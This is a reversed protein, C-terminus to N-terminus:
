WKMFRRLGAPEALRGALRPQGPPLERGVWRWQQSAFLHLYGCARCMVQIQQATASEVQQSGPGTGSPMEVACREFPKVQAPLLSGCRGCRYGRLMLPSGGAQAGAPVDCDVQSFPEMWAGEGITVGGAIQSHHGIRAGARIWTFEASGPEKQESHSGVQSYEGIQVGKEIYLFGHLSASKHITVYDELMVTGNVAVDPGLACHSGALLNERVLTYNKNAGSIGSTSLIKM